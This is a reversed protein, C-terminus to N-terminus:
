SIRVTFAWGLSSTSTVREVRDITAGGPGCAGCAAAVILQQMIQLDELSRAIAELRQAQAADTLQGAENIQAWPRLVVIRGGWTTVGAHDAGAPGGPIVQVEADCDSGPPQQTAEVTVAGPPCRDDPWGCRIRAALDAWMAILPRPPAAVCPTCDPCPTDPACWDTLSPCEGPEPVPLVAFDATTEGDPTTVTITTDGDPCGPPVVVTIITGDNSVIAVPDGCMTVTADTLNTGVIQITAGPLAAGPFVAVVTPDPPCGECDVYEIPYPDSSGASNTLILDYTGPPLVPAGVFVYGGGGIDLVGGVGANVGGVEASVVDTIPSIIPVLVQAWGPADACLSVPLAGYIVPVTVVPPAEFTFSEANSTGAPTTITVPYPGATHAPSTVTALNGSPDVTLGTGATGGFDVATAGTLDGGIIDVLTGGTDPGATPILKTITPPIPQADLRLPSYSVDGSAFGKTMVLQVAGSCGSWVINARQGPAVTVTGDGNDTAGGASVLVPTPTGTLRVTVTTAAAYIPATITSNPGADAELTLTSTGGQPHLWPGNIGAMDFYQGILGRGPFWRPADTAASDWAVPTGAPATGPVTSTLGEYGWLVWPGSPPPLLFIYPKEGAPVDWVPAIPAAGTTTVANGEVVTGGGASLLAYPQSGSRYSRLRVTWAAATGSESALPTLDFRTPGGPLPMETTLYVVKGAVPLGLWRSPTPTTAGTGGYFGSFPVTLEYAM